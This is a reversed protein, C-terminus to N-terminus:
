DESFEYSSAVSNQRITSVSRWEDVLEEIDLEDVYQKHNLFISIHNLRKQTMTSRIYTRLRRLSSFSREATCSTGPVLLVLTLVNKLSELLVALAPNSQLVEGIKHVATVPSMAQHMEKRRYHQMEYVLNEKSLEGKVYEVITDISTICQKPDTSTIYKEMALIVPHVEFRQDFSTVMAEFTEMYIEVFYARVDKPNQVYIIGTLLKSMEMADQDGEARM